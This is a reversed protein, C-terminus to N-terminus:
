QYLHRNDDYSKKLFDIGTITREISELEPKVSDKLRSNLRICTELIEKGRFLNNKIEQVKKVSDDFPAKKYERILLSAMQEFALASMLYASTFDPKLSMSRKYLDLVEITEQKSLAVSRKKMMATALGYCALYDQDKSRPKFYNIAEDYKGILIMKIGPDLEIPQNINDELMNFFDFNTSCIKLNM